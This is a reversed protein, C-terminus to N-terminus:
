CQQNAIIGIIHGLAVLIINYAADEATKAKDPCENGGDTQLIVITTQTRVDTYAGHKEKHHEEDAMKAKCGKAYPHGMIDDDISHHQEDVQGDEVPHM